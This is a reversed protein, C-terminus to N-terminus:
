TKNIAQLKFWVMAMEKGYVNYAALPAPAGASQGDPGPSGAPPAAPTSGRRLFSTIMYM